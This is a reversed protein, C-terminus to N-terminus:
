AYVPHGSPPATTSFVLYLVRLYYHTNFRGAVSNVAARSWLTPTKNTITTAIFYVQLIIICELYRNVVKLLLHIHLYTLIKPNKKTETRVLTFYNM